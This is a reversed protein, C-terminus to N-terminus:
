AQTFRLFSRLPLANSKGEKRKGISRNREPILQTKLCLSVAEVPNPNGRRM